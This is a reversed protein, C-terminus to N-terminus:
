LCVCIYSIFFIYTLICGENGGDPGTSKELCTWSYRIAGTMQLPGIAIYEMPGFLNRYAFKPHNGWCIVIETSQM